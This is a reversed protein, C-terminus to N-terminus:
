IHKWCHHNVISSVHTQKINYLSALDTQFYKGSKYKSRIELVEKESLKTYPRRKLVDISHMKNEKATCWELNNFRNNQKNGDIHNIQTKNHINPLFAQAVLRHVLNWNYQNNKSLKIRYYGFKSLYPFLIKPQNSVGNRPLSIIRGWNSILYNSEFGVIPKWLESERIKRM